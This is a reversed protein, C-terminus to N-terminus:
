RSSGRLLFKFAAAVVALGSKDWFTFSAGMGSCVGTVKRGTQKICLEDPWLGTFGTVVSVAAM